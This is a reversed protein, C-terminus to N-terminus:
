DEKTKDILQETSIKNKRWSMLNDLFEQNEKKNDKGLLLAKRANCQKCEVLTLHGICKEENMIHFDACVDYDHEHKVFVWIAFTVLSIIAIALVLTFAVM